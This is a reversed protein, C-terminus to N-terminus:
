AMKGIVRKNQMYPTRHTSFIKVVFSKRTLKHLVTSSNHDFFGSHNVYREVNESLINVVFVVSM